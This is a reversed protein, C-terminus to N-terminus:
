KEPEPPEIALLKIRFVMDTSPPVDGKGTVGYAFQFPAYVQWEDGPRMLPVVVQWATILKGLPFKVGEAPSKDITAGGALAAEYVVLVTDKRTPHAGAPDGSAIVNYKLTPLVVQYDANATAATASLAHGIMCALTIAAIAISRLGARPQLSTRKVVYSRRKIVKAHTATLMAMEAKGHVTPRKHNLKVKSQSFLLM